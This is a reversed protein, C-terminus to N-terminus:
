LQRLWGNHKHRRQSDWYFYSVSNPCLKDTNTTQVTNDSFTIGQAATMGSNFEVAGSVPNVTIKNSTLSSITPAAITSYPVTM